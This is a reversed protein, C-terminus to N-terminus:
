TYDYHSPVAAHDPSVAMSEVSAKEESILLGALICAAGVGARTGLRERLFIFSTLWAFQSLLFLQPIRQRPSQQAWAQIAFSPCVSFETIGIGWLVPPSWVVHVKEAIRVTLIM